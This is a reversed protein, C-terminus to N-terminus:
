EPICYDECTKSFYKQAEDLENFFRLEIDEIGWNDDLDADLSKEFSITEVGFGKGGEGDTLSLEISYAYSENDEDLYDTLCVRYKENNFEQLM